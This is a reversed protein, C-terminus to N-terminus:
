NLAAFLMQEDRRGQETGSARRNETCAIGLFTSFFGGEGPEEGSPLPSERERV